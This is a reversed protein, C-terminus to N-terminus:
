DAIAKEVLARMLPEIRGIVQRDILLRAPFAPFGNINESSMPGVTEVFRVYFSRRVEEDALQRCNALWRFSVSVVGNKWLQFAFAVGGGARDFMAFISGHQRAVRAYGGLRETLELFAHAGATAENGTPAIFPAIWEECSMPQMVAQRKPKQSVARATNGIVRPVLTTISSEGEFWRLEVARVDARMQENLFEVIRALEPPIVDAVFVLKIRGASFNADVQDWFAEQDSDGIFQALVEDPDCDASGCTQAFSESISGASWYAVSNAAYDLMQAVVERRLRTDSARKVEVLVPVASRTVFLHDLSWRGGKDHDDAIPQERRILLLEGDEDSILEPYRAILEQVKMESAPIAPKMRALEGDADVLFIADGSM